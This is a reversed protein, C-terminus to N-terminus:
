AEAEVLAQVLRRAFVGAMRKRYQPSLFTNKVPNIGESVGAQLRQYWSADPAQGELERCLEGLYVPVVDVATCALELRAVRGEVLRLAAGVGAEAFDISSRLALKRYGSALNEAEAPLSIKVLVEDPRAHNKAIGDGQFFERIPVERAGAPGLLHLTADLCLLGPALEGPYMAYCIEPQLVVRCIDGDAKLCYGEAERWAQFQNFWFCRTEVMLNGGCTAQRRLPASAIGGAAETLVPFRKGWAEDTALQHLTVTAGLDLAGLTRLEAIADLSVVHPRPNLRQKYNPLLDSGGALIDVGEDRHEGLLAVADALQSPRHLRFPPLQM